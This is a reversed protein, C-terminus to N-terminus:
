ALLGASPAVYTRLQSGAMPAARIAPVQSSRQMAHKSCGAAAAGCHWHVARTDPTPYALLAALRMHVVAATGGADM